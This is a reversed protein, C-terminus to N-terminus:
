RWMTDHWSNQFTCVLTSDCEVKRVVVANVVLTNADVVGAKRAAWFSALPMDEWTSANTNFYTVTNRNMWDVGMQEGLAQLWRVSTDISCGTANPSREDLAIVLCRGGELRWSAQLSQGHAVWELLFTEIAARLGDQEEATLVRDATYLWVRSTSPLASWTTGEICEGEKWVEAENISQSAQM